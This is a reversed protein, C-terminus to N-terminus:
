PHTELTYLVYVTYIIYWIYVTNLFVRRIRSMYVYLTLQVRSIALAVESNQGIQATFQLLCASRVNYM